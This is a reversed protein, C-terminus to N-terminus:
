PKRRIERPRLGARRAMEDVIREDQELAEASFAAAGGGLAGLPNGIEPLELLASLYAERPIGFSAALRVSDEVQGQLKATLARCFLRVAQGRGAPGMYRCDPAICRLLAGLSQFLGGSGGVFFLFPEKLGGSKSFIGCDLYGVDFRRFANANKHALAPSIQTLDVVASGKRFFPRVGNLLALQDSESDLALFLVGCEDCVQAATACRRVEGPCDRGDPDYVFLDHATARLLRATLERGTEGLGIVGINM